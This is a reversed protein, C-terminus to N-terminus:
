KSRLWSLIRDTAGRIPFANPAPHIANWEGVQELAKRTKKLSRGVLLNAGATITEPWETSARLTVCYTGLISAEQQIGASDTLVAVANKLLALLDAYGVPGIATLTTLMGGLGFTAIRSRTRPHLPLIVPLQEACARLIRLIGALAAPDATNEQRHVTALYFHRRRLQLRKLIGSADIGRSVSDVVDTIPHGYMMVKQKPISENLLNRACGPSAAFHTEALDSILLRNVEEVTSRDFSRCGAEIHAIKISLRAAALSVALASDTDGLVVLRSPRLKDLAGLSGGLIRYFDSSDTKPRTGLDFDPPPLHLERMIAAAMQVDYHQGTFCFRLDIGSDKKGAKILTSLKILEPRTGAALVITM